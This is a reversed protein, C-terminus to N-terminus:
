GNDPASHDSMHAPLPSPAPITQFARPAGSFDFFARLDSKSRSDAFNLSGEAIGFNHQIFRLISGFDHHVNNITRKPTYASVVLLPVRFGYQYDGQPMPLVTPAVHDYWGGWDDWTVFIATDKWYGNGGDCSTSHGIANVISAVWAPGGAGSAPGAHDSYPGAPMVWSVSRLKCANIDAVVAPPHFRLHRKWMPGACTGGQGTPQCIHKISNPATWITGPSPAYYQWTVSAPFLDPMTQHEFCPYILGIEGAPGDEEVQTGKPSACGAKKKFGGTAGTGVLNETVFNGAADDAASPASTGGFLFQHAPYSPGQNTQFMANAFGYQTALEMYPSVTGTANDVYRFQPMPPCSQGKAARCSVGASGDMRCQTTGTAADCQAVWGKHSHNLDYTNALPIPQPTVRASKDLWSSTQIDYQAASPTASCSTATGYPAVCLGHFLNDPTRNEQVIVIVHKFTEGVPQPPLPSPKVKAASSAATVALAALLPIALVGFIRGTRLSM